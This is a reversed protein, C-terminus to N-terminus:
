NFVLRLVKRAKSAEVFARAFIEDERIQFAIPGMLEKELEREVNHVKEDDFQYSTLNVRAFRLTGVKGVGRGARAKARGLALIPLSWSEGVELEIPADFVGMDVHLVSLATFSMSIRECLMYWSKDSRLKIERFTNLSPENYMTHHIEIHQIAAQAWKPTKKLFLSICKPSTFVFQTCAYLLGLTDQYFQKSAFPLCLQTQIKPKFPLCTKIQTTPDRPALQKHYLHYHHQTKTTDKSRRIETRQPLFLYSYIQNRIEPPLEM